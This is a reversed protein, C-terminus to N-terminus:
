SRVRIQPTFRTCVVDYERLLECDRGPCQKDVVVRTLDAFRLHREIM